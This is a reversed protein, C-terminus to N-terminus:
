PRELELLVWEGLARRERLALGQAEYAVVVDPAQADLIGSLLLTRGTRAAIAAALERLPNALINAVVVDFTGGLEDVPTLSTRAEVGNKRANQAAIDVAVPDNDIMVVHGAGLRAAAIGLVGSGCGVDLVSAGSSVRDALAELCLATTAHGGTGFAMGPEIVVKPEPADEWPPVVWLKGRVHLPRFHLKWTESWDEEPLRAVGARLEAGGASEGLAECARAAIAEGAADEGFYGVVVARGPPPASAGPPPLIEHDRIEVGGAGEEHLLVSADEALGAPVDLTVAVYM